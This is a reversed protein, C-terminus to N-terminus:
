LSVLHNDWILQDDAQAIEFGGPKELAIGHKVTVALRDGFAAVGSPQPLALGDLPAATRADFRLIYDGKPGTLVIQRQDPTFAISGAYHKLRATDPHDVFQLAGGRTHLALLPVVQRVPGQWQLAVAVRGQADVGIHRISNQHLADPPAVQEVVQAQANLYTLNPRMTPLNLKTRGYDPHTQIGGNAVAFAGDPLRIIEHPGVGGSAVEDIRRYGDSTDWIGIRGENADYDNETTLLHRGDATFAGHGFFHRGEPLTLNASVAGDGACDLVMGFLGPRRAFVVAEARHPHAAAAHGRTPLPLRFVEHAQADLAVLWANNQRDNAATLVRPAGTAAWGAGALMGASTAFLFDRRRM